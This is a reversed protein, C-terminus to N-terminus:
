GLLEMVRTLGMALRDLDARNNYVGLSARTTAPIGFREMVPQACHHGTRVAVGEMDLVTGVDHPHIGDIVFSLVGAKEPATGILRIRDFNGLLQTGYDLLQQEHAAVADMGLAQIWGLAAALGVGGAINPTGAEFRTPPPAVVTSEFTVSRIMEGGGQWPPMAELLAKKGYLAGIGTPAYVKHGSFMYFDCDMDLVDVACHPVAQAGDILVVAGVKHAMQTMQKVPNITGLANSVHVVGVLKTRENLLEAYAEMDLVGRDDMPIVRIKAGTQAAVFQWPVINSHHEMGSLLIEDGAKLNPVGWAYAVLNIAETTGRTFVIEKTSPAGLFDRVAERGAEYAITARQSLQHVGRHVNAHDNRYYYDIADLVAVPRQASAASDLFSLPKGFIQQDLVPFQARIEDINFSM